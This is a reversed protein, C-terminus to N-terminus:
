PYTQRSRQRDKIKTRIARADTNESDPQMHAERPQVYQENPQMFAWQPKMYAQGPQM